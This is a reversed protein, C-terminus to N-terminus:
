NERRTYEGGRRLTMLNTNTQPRNRRTETFRNPAESYSYGREYRGGRGGPRIGMRNNRMGLMGGLGGRGRTNRCVWVFNFVFESAKRLEEELTIWLLACWYFCVLVFSSSHYTNPYLSTLETTIKPVLDSITKHSRMTELTLQSVWLCNGFPAPCFWQIM